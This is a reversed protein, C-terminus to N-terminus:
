LNRYHMIQVIYTDKQDDVPTVAVCDSRFVHGCCDHECNCPTHASLSRQIENRHNAKAADEWQEATLHAEIRETESDSLDDWRPEPVPWKVLALTLFHDTDRFVGLGQFTAWYPQDLFTIPTQYLEAGVTDMLRALLTM